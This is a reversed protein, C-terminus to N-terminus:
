LTVQTVNQANEQLSTLNHVCHILWNVNSNKTLFHVLLASLANQILLNLVFLIAKHLSQNKVSVLRLSIMDLFALPVPAV